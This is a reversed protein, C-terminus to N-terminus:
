ILGLNGWCLDIHGNVRDDILVLGAPYRGMGLPMFFPSLLAGGILDRGWGSRILSAMRLSPHSM